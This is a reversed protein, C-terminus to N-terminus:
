YDYENLEDNVFQFCHDRNMCRDVLETNEKILRAIYNNHERMVLAIIIALNTEPHREHLLLGVEYADTSPFNCIPLSELCFTKGSSGGLKIQFIPLVQTSGRLVHIHSAVVSDCDFRNKTLLKPNYIQQDGPLIACVLLCGKSYANAYNIDTTTYVGEGYANGNAMIYGEDYPSLLGNDVISSINLQNTGHYAMEVQGNGYIQFMEKQQLFFKERLPTRIRLIASIRRYGALKDLIDQAIKDIEPLAPPYHFSELYQTM